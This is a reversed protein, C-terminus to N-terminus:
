PATLTVEASILSGSRRSAGEDLVGGRSEIEARLQDMAEFEAYEIEAILAGDSADYRLGTLRMEPIEDLARTLMASVDMFAGSGTARMANLRTEIQRRADIIRTEEPFAELFRADAQARLDSARGNLMVAEAGVYILYLALCAAALAGARILRRAQPLFPRRPAYAGQRLNIFGGARWGELILARADANRTLAALGSLRASMPEPPEAGDLWARDIQAEQADLVAAALAPEASFGRAPSAFLVRGEIVALASDEGSRPLLDYDAVVAGARVGLARVAALVHDLWARSVLAIARASQGSPGLAIHVGEGSVALDDELAFRAAARTQAESASPLDLRRRAVGEGPLVVCVSDAALGADPWDAPAGEFRVAGSADVAIAHTLWDPEEAAFLFLDVSM